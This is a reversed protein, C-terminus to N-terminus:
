RARIDFRAGGSESEGAVIEWGHAAAASDAVFLGYGEGERVTGYGQEFIRDRDNESIGPGDDAVYFGTETDGVTVTTDEGAHVVANDFLREFILRLCDKSAAITRDTEVHLREEPGGFDRWVAEAMEALDVADSGDISGRVTAVTSLEELLSEVRRVSRTVADTHTDEGDILELRGTVVNLPNKADHAFGRALTEWREAQVFSDLSPTNIHAEIRAALEASRDDSWSALYETVGASLAAEIRDPDTDSAVLAVPLKWDEQRVRRFTEVGDSAPPDDIVVLADADALEALLGGSDATVVTLHGIDGLAAQLSSVGGSEAGTVVVKRGTRRGNM